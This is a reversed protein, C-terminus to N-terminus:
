SHLVIQGKLQRWPEKRRGWELKSCNTITWCVSVLPSTCRYEPGVPFDRLSFIPAPLGHQSPLFCHNLLFVVLDVYGQHTPHEQREVDSLVEQFQPSLYFGPLM